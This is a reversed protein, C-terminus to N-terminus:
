GRGHSQSYTSYGQNYVVEGRYRERVEKASLGGYSVEGDVSTFSETQSAITKLFTSCGSGPRGLVLLMEGDKVCGSFDHLITRQVSEAPKRHSILMKLKKFPLLFTGGFTENMTVGVGIGKVKLRKWIVGVHKRKSIDGDARGFIGGMIDALEAEHGDDDPSPAGTTRRSLRRVLADLDEPPMSATSRSTRQRTLPPTAESSSPTYKEQERENITSMESHEGSILTAPEGGAEFAIANELHQEVIATASM